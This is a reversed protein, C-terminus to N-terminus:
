DEEAREASPHTKGELAPSTGVPIEANPSHLELIPYPMEIGEIQYRKHLRKIFEHRIRSRDAFDMLRLYVMFKIDSESFEKYRINSPAVLVGNGVERLVSDAVDETIREVMELDSDYSVGVAVELEFESSPRDFNVIEAKTLHSNPVVIESDRRQQISTVDWGIDVVRGEEGSPLRVYDGPSLRQSVTLLVGAFLNSLPERMALSLGLTSGLITLLLLPVPVNLTYLIVTIVILIAAGNILYRLVSVSASPRQAALIRVWGTLVRVAVITISILLLAWLIEQGRQRTISVDSLGALLMGAGLLVCWFLPLWHMAGLVVTGLRWGKAETWRQALRLVLELVIGFILLGVLLGVSGLLNFRLLADFEETM